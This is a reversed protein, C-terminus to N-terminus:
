VFINTISTNDTTDSNWNFGGGSHILNGKARLSHTGGTSGGNKLFITGGSFEINGNITLTCSSSIDRSVSLQGSSVYLNGGVVQSTKNSGITAGSITLDGNIVITSPFTHTFSGSLILHHYTNASVFGGSGLNAYEFTSGTNFSEVGNFTSTGNGTSTHNLVYKGDNNITFSGSTHAITNRVNANVIGNVILNGIKNSATGITLAHSLTLTGDVRLTSSGTLAWAATTTYSHGSQVVFIYGDGTFGPPSVGSGDTNSKWNATSNPNTQSVVTYFTGAVVSSTAASSYYNNNISYFAYYYQTGVTLGTDTFSNGSNNAQIVTAGDISNGNTYATGDTPATTTPSTKRLIIVNKSNWRTWNLDVSTATTPSPAVNGLTPAM